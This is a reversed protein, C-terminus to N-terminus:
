VSPPKGYKLLLEPLQQSFASRPLVLDCGAQVAREKLDVQVHSLYGLITVPRPSAKLAAITEIPQFPASNLDIILLHAQERELKTALEEASKVFEITLGIGRATEAIKSSFFLDNVAALIQM